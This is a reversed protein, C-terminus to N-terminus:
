GQGREVADLELIRRRAQAAQRHSGYIGFFISVVIIALWSLARYIHTPPAIAGAVMLVLMAGYVFILRSWLWLGSHYRRERELESRFHATQAPLDAGPPMRRGRRAIAQLALYLISAIMLLCGTRRVPNHLHALSHGFVAVVFVTILCIARARAITQKALRDAAAPVEALATLHHERVCPKQFLLRASGLAWRLADWDNQISALEQASAQAWDKTASSSHRVVVVSIQTALKRLLTM